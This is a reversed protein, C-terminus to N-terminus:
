PTRASSLPRGLVGCELATAVTTVVMSLPVALAAVLLLLVGPETVHLWLLLAPSGLVVVLLGAAAACSFAVGTSGVLFSGCALGLDTLAWVVLLLLAPALPNMLYDSWLGHGGGVPMGLRRLLATAAALFLGLMPGILLVHVLTPALPPPTRQRGARSGSTDIRELAMAGCCVGIAIVVFAPGAERGMSDGGSGEYLGYLAPVSLLAVAFTVGLAVAFSKLAARGIM